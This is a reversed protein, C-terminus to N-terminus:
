KCPLHEIQWKSGSFSYWHEWKGSTKQRLSYTAIAKRKMLIKCHICESIGYEDEPGWKHNTRNKTKM